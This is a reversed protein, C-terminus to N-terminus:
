GISKTAFSGCGDFFVPKYTYIITGGYPYTVTNLSYSGASGPTTIQPNYDYGWRTGDPRIVQRLQLYNGGVEVIGEYVYQWTQGSPGNARISALRIDPSLESAYFFEVLRGDSSTIQDIYTDGYGSNKYAIDITNGNTDRIQSTYWSV